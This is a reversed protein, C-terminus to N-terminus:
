VQHLMVTENWLIENSDLPTSLCHEEWGNTTKRLTHYIKTSGTGLLVLKAYILISYGNSKDTHQYFRNLIISQYAQQLEAVSREGKYFDALCHEVDWLAIGEREVRKGMLRWLGDAEKAMVYIFDNSPEVIRSVVAIFGEAKNSYLNRIWSLYPISLTIEFNVDSFVRHVLTPRTPIAGISLWGTFLPNIIRSTKALRASHETYGRKM